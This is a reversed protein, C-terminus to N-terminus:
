VSKSTQVELASRKSIILVIKQSLVFNRFNQNKKRWIRYRNFIPSVQLALWILGDSFAQRMLKFFSVLIQM